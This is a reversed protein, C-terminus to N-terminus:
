VPIGWARYQALTQQRAIEAMPNWTNLWQGLAAPTHSIGRQATFPDIAQPYGSAFPVNGLNATLPSVQAALYPTHTLGVHSADLMGLQTNFPSVAGFQGGFPVVGGFPSVGYQGYQSVAGYPSVGTFPSHSLGNMQFPNIRSVRSLADITQNLYDNLTRLSSIELTRPDM